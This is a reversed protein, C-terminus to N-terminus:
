ADDGMEVADLSECGRVARDDTGAVQPVLALKAPAGGPGQAAHCVVPQLDDATIQAPRCAWPMPDDFSRAVRQGDRFGELTRGTHVTRNEFEPGKAYGQRM